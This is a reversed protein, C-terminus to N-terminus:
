ISQSMFRKISAFMAYISKPKGISAAQEFLEKDTEQLSVLKEMSNSGKASRQFQNCLAKNQRQIMDEIGLSRLRLHPQISVPKDFILSITPGNLKFDSKSYEADILGGIFAQAMAASKFTISIEM